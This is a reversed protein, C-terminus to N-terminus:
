YLDPIDATTYGLKKWEDSINGRWNREDALVYGVRKLEEKEAASIKAIALAGDVWAKISDVDNWSKIM